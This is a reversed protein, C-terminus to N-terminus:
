TAGEHGGGSTFYIFVDELTPEEIRLTYVEVGRAVLERLLIGAVEEPSRTLLRVTLGEESEEVSVKEVELGEITRSVLMKDGRVHAVITRKGAMKEKLEGPTGEAIIRGKDILLIRDCVLEAEFMNHTTYLITKGNGAMERVLSRIRRASPPDLGLTPEDLILVPPDRLLARALGLRAKMGLSYEEFLRDSAGLKDLELLRLLEEVRKEAESSSLGYLAAFYRLNERGTLKAYFGKEVSFVVGISKRVDDVEEVVHFGNIWADGEDPILLTALIKVTTTKGAGNPGLLGVVEGRRVKFSVGRLAEIVQPTSKFLGKRQRTVYRKVLGEAVITYEHL